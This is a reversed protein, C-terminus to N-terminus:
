DPTAAAPVAGQPIRVRQVSPAGGGPAISMRTVYSDRQPTEGLTSSLVAKTV